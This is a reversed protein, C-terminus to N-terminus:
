CDGHEPWYAWKNWIQCQQEKTMFETHSIGVCGVLLILSVYFVIKYM